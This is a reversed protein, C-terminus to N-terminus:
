ATIQKRLKKLANQELQRVREASIGYRVALDQLTSKNETLWRSQIIERSREDLQGFAMRLDQRQGEAHREFELLTAPDAEEDALFRSPSVFDEDDKDTNDFAEDRSALRGEMQRVDGPKVGLEGAVHNVEQENMWGIRRQQSRLNFFLKRQAKTTAIKVIRWNKLIYEHIEAKIWHVAFSVLRVGYEPNFRRVAKMLGVNGEQILDAESLGYGSYSRAIYVVFRLHSMVLRRAADLEGDYFLKETLAREDDASLLPIGNISQIYSELNGGPSLLDVPQLDRSM